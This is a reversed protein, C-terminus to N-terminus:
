LKGGIALVIFLLAVVFPLLILGRRHLFPIQERVSQPVEAEPILVIDECKSCTGFIEVRKLFGFVVAVTGYAYRVVANRLSQPGCSVCEGVLGAVEFEREESSISLM